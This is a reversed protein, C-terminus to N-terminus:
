PSSVGFRPLPFRPRLHLVWEVKLVDLHLVQLIRRFASSVSAFVGSFFCKFGNYLMHLMLIFCKCYIHSVCAVDLYVYKCCAYSSVSSVNFVSPQLMYLM